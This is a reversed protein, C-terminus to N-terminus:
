TGVEETRLAAGIALLCRGAHSPLSDPYEVIQQLDLMSVDIGLSTHLGTLLADTDFEQPAVVLSGVPMQAFTREYFDFSRQIELAIANVTPELRSAEVMLSSTGFPLNRALCLERGSSIIILGSDAEFYLFGVSRGTDPIHNLLNSLVLEPIDIARIKLRAERMWGVREEVRDRHAAAVYATRARQRQNGRPIHFLDVVAEEPPYDILDGIQWRIAERLENAPVDPPAVQLLQYCNIEMVCVAPCSELGRKRCGDSLLLRGDISESTLFDCVTLRPKSGTQPLVHALALGGESRSFGVLGGNSSIKGFLRKIM